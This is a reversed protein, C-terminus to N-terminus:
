VCCCHQVANCRYQNVRRACWRYKNDCCTYNWRVGYSIELESEATSNRGEDIFPGGSKRSRARRNDILDVCRKAERRGTEIAVDFDGM